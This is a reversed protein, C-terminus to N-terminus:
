AKILEIDLTRAVNALAKDFTLLACGIRQAISIHLADPTRLPSDLRRMLGIATAFDIRDVEV